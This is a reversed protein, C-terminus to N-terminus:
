DEETQYRWMGTELDKIFAFDETGNSGDYIDVTMVYKQGNEATPAIVNELLDSFVTLIMDNSWYAPNSDRRDFNGFNAMSSVAAEFGPTAAYNAEIYDYDDGSITYRVTNDPVWEGGTYGFQLSTDIVSQSAMWSGSMFTYLNGRIGAGSSSSFYKYVVFIQDEEQAFPYEIGLFTPIYNDAPTSSSFNNFAGPQGSGEGMSDYDSDSLYYVGEAEEWSGGNYVFYEGKGDTDGTVGLTRIAFDQVRWRPSDGEDVDPTAPDDGISGYKLAVHIQQGDYDSFDFDESTTLNGYATKDFDIATWNAAMVDGGTTYDTAVLIDILAENGLFDIEQTIQFLLDSEGTLDIEPSILWEEVTNAGGDFGSGQVNAAGVTWGLAEPGSVSILEFNDFDGPFVAQYLNALGVVPTEFYQKYTALVLQGDVPDAIQSALVAPIEDTPDVNPYFGFADSGTTAYDDNTLQYTTAGTYDSVGEAQGVFLKYNVLVSSGEGYLPYLEELLLPISDKAQDESGFNGFSLDFRDYDADILTYEFSGINPEDPLADIEANIDDFPNCGVFITAVLAFLYIVKKM